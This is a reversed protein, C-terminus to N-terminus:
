FMVMGESTFISFGRDDVQGLSCNGANSCGILDKNLLCELTKLFTIANVTELSDKKIIDCNIGNM